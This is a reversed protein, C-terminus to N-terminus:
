ASYRVVVLSRDDGGPRGGCFREVDALVAEIIQGVPLRSALSVAAALREEGYQAAPDGNACAETIGDTYAIVLDGHELMVRSEDVPSREDVGIPIGGTALHLVEGTEARRLFAPNHGADSYRLEGTSADLCGLWATLFLEARSLDDHITRSAQRIVAAPRPEVLLAARFAARTATQMLAAALNHGSVDAVLFALTSEGIRMHDYYDGGVNSAPLCTGAVEIGPILPPAGPLLSEQINRAIVLERELAILRSNQILVAAQGAIAQAVKLDGSTFPPAASMGPRAAKDRLQLVGIPKRDSGPVTLPVSLLTRETRRESGVLSGNKLARVDDVLDASNTQFVRGAVGDEPSQPPIATDVPQAAAARFRGSPGDALLIWGARAPIIARAKALAVRCVEDADPAGALEGALEYFVNLEEYSGLIERSLDNLEYERCCLEGLVSAGYDAVGRPSEAAGDAADGRAVVYGLVREFAVVSSVCSRDLGDVRLTGNEGSPRAAAMAGDARLAKGDKSYIGIECQLARAHQKLWSLANGRDVVRELEAPPPM